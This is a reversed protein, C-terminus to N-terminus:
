SGSKHIAVLRRGKFGEGLKNVWAASSFGYLNTVTSYFLRGSHFIMYLSRTVPTM